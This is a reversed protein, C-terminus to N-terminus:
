LRKVLVLSLGYGIEFVHEDSWGTLKKVVAAVQEIPDEPTGVKDKNAEAWRHIPSGTRAKAKMEKMTLKESMYVEEGEVAGDKNWVRRDVPGWTGTESPPLPLDSSMSRAVQNGKLMMYDTLSSMAVERAETNIKVAEPHSNLTYFPRAVAFLAVTGGSRLVKAATSWWEPAFWHAATGATIMDVSGAEVPIDEASGVKYELKGQLTDPACQSALKIMSQSPDVGIVTDFYSTLAETVIGPGCGLDVAVGRQGNQSDHFELIDKYLREPYKPRHARYNEVSYSPDAFTNETM